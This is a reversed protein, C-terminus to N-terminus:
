GSATREAFALHNTTGVRELWSLLVGRDSVALQPESSNAGAPSEVRQVTVTWETPERSGCSLSTIALAAALPTLFRNRIPM